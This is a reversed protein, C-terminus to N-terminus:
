HRKPRPRPLPVPDRLVQGYTEAPDTIVVAGSTKVRDLFESTALRTPESGFASDFITWDPVPPVGPTPEKVTGAHENGSQNSTGIKLLMLIILALGAFGAVIMAQVPKRTSSTGYLRRLSNLFPDSQLLIAYVGDRARTAILRLHSHRSFAEGSRQRFACWFPKGKLVLFEVGQRLFNFPPRGSVRMARQSTRLTEVIQAVTEHAYNQVRAVGSNVLM